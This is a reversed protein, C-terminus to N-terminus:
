WVRDLLRYRPQALSAEGISTALVREARACCYLSAAVGPVSLVLLGWPVGVALPLALYFLSRAGLDPYRVTRQRRAICAVAALAIGVANGVGGFLPGGTPGILAYFGGVSVFILPKVWSPAKPGAPAGADRRAFLDALWFATILTGSLCFRVWALDLIPAIM